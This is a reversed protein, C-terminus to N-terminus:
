AVAAEPEAKEIHGHGALTDLNIDAVCRVPTFDLSLDGVVHISGTGEEFNAGDFNCDYKNLRVGLETGPNTDTFKVRLYGSDLTDKFQRLSPEPRLCVVAPHDGSALRDVLSPTKPTQPIARAVPPNRALEEMKKRLSLPRMDTWVEKIYALCEVKLGVKGADRWGRPNERYEPWISYQEEENVVAKYITKDEEESYQSAM